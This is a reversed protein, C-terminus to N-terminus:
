KATCSRESLRVKELEEHNGSSCCQAAGTSYTLNQLAPLLFKKILITNLNNQDGFKFLGHCRMRNPAVSTASAQASAGVYEDSQCDLQVRIYSGPESLTRYDSCDFSESVWDASVTLTYNSISRLLGKYLNTSVM